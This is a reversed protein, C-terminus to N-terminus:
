NRHLPSEDPVAGYPSDIVLLWGGDPQRRVVDTTRGKASVTRGLGDGEFITWDSILLALDGAVYAKRITLQMQPKSALVNALLKRIENVGSVPGETRSIFTAGKEYLSMVGDLDGASFREAFVWHVQEPSCSTM